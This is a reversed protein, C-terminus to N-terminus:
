KRRKPTWAWLMTAQIPEKNESDICVVSVDVEGKETNQILDIQEDTLTATATLDGKCRKKFDLTFSKIVPVKDDPVNMGVVMGTATEAVLAMAAAHVGGIHNQVKKRNRIRFVSKHHTLEICEVKATGVLKVVRGIAASLLVKRLGKPASEIKKIVRNLRNDKSM